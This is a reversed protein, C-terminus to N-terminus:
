VWTGNVLEEPESLIYYWQKRLTPLRNIMCLIVCHRVFLLTLTFYTVVKFIDPCAYKNLSAIYRVPQCLTYCIDRTKYRKWDNLLVFFFLQLQLIIYTWAQSNSENCTLYIDNFIYNYSHTNMRKRQLKCLFDLEYWRVLPM